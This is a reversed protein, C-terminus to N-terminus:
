SLTQHLPIPLSLPSQAERKSVSDCNAFLEYGYMLGPLLCCKAMLRRINLSTFYQTSQLCRLKMYTQGALTKVQNTLNDNFSMIICFSNLNKLIPFLDKEKSSNAIQLIRLNLSLSQPCEYPLIHEFKQKGKDIIYQQCHSWKLLKAALNLM